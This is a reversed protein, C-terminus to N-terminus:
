DTEADFPAPLRASVVGPEPQTRWEERPIVRIGEEDVLVQAMGYMALSELIEVQVESSLGFVGSPLGGSM